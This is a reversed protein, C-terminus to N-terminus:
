TFVEWVTRLAAQFLHMKTGQLSSALLSNTLFAKATHFFSSSSSSSSSSLSTISVSPSAFKPFSSHLFYSPLLPVVSLSPQPFFSGKKAHPTPTPMRKQTLAAPLDQPEEHSAPSDMRFRLAAQLAKIEKAAVVTLFGLAVCLAVQSLYFKREVEREKVYRQLCTSYEELIHLDTLLLTFSMCLYQNPNPCTESHHVFVPVGLSFPYPLRSAIKQTWALAGRTLGEAAQTLTQTNDILTLAMDIRTEAAEVCRIAVHRVLITGCYLLSLTSVCKKLFEWTIM